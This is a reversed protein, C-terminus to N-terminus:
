WDTHCGRGRRPYLPSPLKTAAVEGMAGARRVEVELGEAMGVVEALGAAVAVLGEVIEVVGTLVGKATGEV